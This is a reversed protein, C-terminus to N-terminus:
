GLVHHGRASLEQVIMDAIARHGVFNPHAKSPRIYKEVLHCNRDLWDRFNGNHHNAYKTFFVPDFIWSLVSHNNPILWNADPIFADLVNGHKITDFLNFFYPIVKKELALYYLLLCTQSSVREDEYENVYLQEHHYQVEVITNRTDRYMRRTKATLCFIALDGPELASASFAEIMYPQSSGTVSQNVVPTSMLDGVIAPFALDPRSEGNANGLECGAPWSDGYFWLTMRDGTAAHTTFGEVDQKQIPM